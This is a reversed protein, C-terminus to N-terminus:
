WSYVCKSKSVSRWKTILSGHYGVYIAKNIMIVSSWFCGRQAASRNVISFDLGRRNDYVWDVKHFVCMIDCVWDVKHFVCENDCVWDVRQLVCMINCASDVKHLVCM